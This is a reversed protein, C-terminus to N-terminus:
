SGSTQSWSTTHKAFPFLSIRGCKQFDGGTMLFVRAQFTGPFKRTLPMGQLHFQLKCRIREGTFAVPLLKHCKMCNTGRLTEVNTANGRWMIVRRPSELSGAGM